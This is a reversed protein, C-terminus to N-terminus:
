NAGLPCTMHGIGLTTADVLANDGAFFVHLLTGDLLAAPSRIERLTWSFDTNKHIPATDQVFGSLGDTSAAHQLRVQTWMDDGYDNAVDHFVHVAGAIVKANPTSYGVWHASRPYLTQDPNFAVQPSSWTKGDQSTIVGIVQLSQNAVMASLGVATFYVRLQGDVVVSGPEGVVDGDFDSLNGTPGLVYTPDKTWTVGDPSTAHGIRFDSASETGWAPHYGTYFLHYNGQFEVVDPTETGGADWDNASGERLVPVTPDLTWHDGDPSLMRYIEVAPGMLGKNASAYMWFQGDVLLVSPDNWTAGALLSAATATAGYHLIPSSGGSFCSPVLKSPDLAPGADPAVADAADLPPSPSADM